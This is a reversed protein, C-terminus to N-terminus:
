ILRFGISRAVELQRSDASLFSLENPNPALYCACALHWLDAGRVYGLKIVKEMEPKLSRDPIVITVAHFQQAFEEQQIGERRAYALAESILLDSSFIRSFKKLSRRHKKDEDEFSIRILWSTDVYAFKAM